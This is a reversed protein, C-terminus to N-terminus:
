LRVLLRLAGKLTGVSAIRLPSRLPAILVFPDSCCIKLGDVPLASPVPRVCNVFLTIGAPMILGIERWIM